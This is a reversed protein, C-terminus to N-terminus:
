RTKNRREAARGRPADAGLEVNERVTIFPFVQRGQPGHAIGAEM